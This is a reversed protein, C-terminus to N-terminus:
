SYFSCDEYLTLSNRKFGYTRWQVLLTIERVRTMYKGESTSRIPNLPFTMCCIFRQQVYFPLFSDKIGSACSGTFCFQILKGSFPITELYVECNEISFSISWFFHLIVTYVRDALSIITVLSRMHLRIPLDYRFPTGDLWKRSCGEMEWPSKHMEPAFSIM